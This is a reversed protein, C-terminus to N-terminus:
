ISYPSSVNTWPLIQQQRRIKEPPPVQRPMQLTLKREEVVDRNEWGGVWLLSGALWAFPIFKANVRLLKETITHMNGM